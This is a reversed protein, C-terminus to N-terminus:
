AGNSPRRNYADCLDAPRNRLSANHDTVVGAGRFLLLEPDAEDYHRAEDLERM